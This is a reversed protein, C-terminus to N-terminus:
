YSGAGCQRSATTRERTVRFHRANWGVPPVMAAGGHADAVGGVLLQLEVDVALEHVRHVHHALVLELGVCFGPPHLLYEHVMEGPDPALGVVADPLHAPRATVEGM